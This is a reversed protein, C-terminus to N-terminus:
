CDQGEYDCRQCDKTIHSLLLDKLHMLVQATKNLSSLQEFSFYCERLILNKYSTLGPFYRIDFLREWYSCRVLDFL